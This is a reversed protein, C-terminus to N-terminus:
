TTQPHNVKKVFHGLGKCHNCEEVPENIGEMLEDLYCKINNILDELTDGKFGPIATYGSYNRGTHTMEFIEIEKYEITHHTFRPSKYSKGRITKLERKVNYPEIQIRKKVTFCFDYDSTITAYKGNINEKVHLRIIEYTQNSTLSCPRKHLLFEPVLMKELESYSCIRSLKEEIINENYCYQDNTRRITYNEPKGEFSYEIDGLFKTTFEVEEYSGTIKESQTNYFSIYQKYKEDKWVIDYDEDVGYGVDEETLVKKLNYLKAAEKFQDKLIFSYKIIDNQKKSVSKIETENEIFFWKSSHTDNLEKNNIKYYDRFTYNDSMVFLGNKAKYYKLNIVNNM